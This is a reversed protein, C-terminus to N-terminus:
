AVAVKIPRAARRIRWNQFSLFRDFVPWTYAKDPDLTDFRPGTRARLSELTLYAGFVALHTLALLPARRIARAAFRLLDGYRRAAFSLGAAYLDYNARSLALLRAPLDPNDKEAKELAFEISNRMREASRSMSNTTERYGVHYGPAVAVSGIRALRLYLDIDEAGQAHAAQFATDYGGVRLVQERNLLTASANRIFNLALLAPLVNRAYRPQGLDDILHDDADIRRSWTYVFAVPVPATDAAKLLRDITRPHWVDDADIPAVWTSTAAAIGNNRASAVGSNAQSLVRVRTDQGAHRRAVDPTGDTSGDDVIIIELDEHLQARVSSLTRDLTDAANFAPLIVSVQTM